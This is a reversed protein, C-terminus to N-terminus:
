IKWRGMETLNKQAAASCPLIEFIQKLRLKPVTMSFKCNQPNKAGEQSLQNLSAAGSYKWLCFADRMEVNGKDDESVLFGAFVGPPGRAIVFEQNKENTKVM